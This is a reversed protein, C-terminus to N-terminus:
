YGWRTRVWQSWLILDNWSRTIPRSVIYIYDISYDKRKRYHQLYLHHLQTSQQCCHCKPSKIEQLTWDPSLSAKMSSMHKMISNVCNEPCSSQIITLPLRLSSHNFQDLKDSRWRQCSLTRSSIPPRLCSHSSTHLSGQRSWGWSTPYRTSSPHTSVPTAWTLYFTDDGRGGDLVLDPWSPWWLYLTKNM